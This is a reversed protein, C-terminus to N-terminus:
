DHARSEKTPEAPAFTGRANQVRPAGGACRGGPSPDPGHRGSVVVCVHVEGRQARVVAPGPQGLGVERGVRDRHEVRQIRSATSAPGRRAWRSPRRWRTPRRAAGDRITSSLPSDRVPEHEEGVGAGALALLQRRVRPARQQERPVRQLALDPDVPGRRREAASSPPPTSRRGGRPEWSPAQADCWDRTTAPRSSSASAYAAASARNGSSAGDRDGVLPAPVDHAGVVDLEPLAAGAPHVVPQDVPTRVRAPRRFPERRLVSEGGLRHIQRRIAHFM